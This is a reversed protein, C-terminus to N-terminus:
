QRSKVTLQSNNYYVIKEYSFYWVPYDASQSMYVCTQLTFVLEVNFIPILFWCNYTLLLHYCFIGSYFLFVMLTNTLIIMTVSGSIIKQTVLASTLQKLQSRRKRQPNYITSSQFQRGVRVVSVIKTVGRCGGFVSRHFDM